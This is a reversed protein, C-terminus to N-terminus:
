FKPEVGGKRQFNHILGNKLSATVTELTSIKMRLEVNAREYEASFNLFFNKIFLLIKNQKIEKGDFIWIVLNKNEHQM